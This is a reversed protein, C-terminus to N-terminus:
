TKMIFFKFQCNGFLFQALIYKFIEKKNIRACFAAAGFKGKGARLCTLDYTM